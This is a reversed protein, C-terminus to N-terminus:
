EVPLARSYGWLAVCAALYAAVGLLGTLMAGTFISSVTAIFAGLVSCVGNVGWLWPLLNERGRARAADLGLPFPTGMFLGVIFVLAAVAAIRVPQPAARLLDAIGPLALIVILTAGVAGLLFLRAKDRMRGPLESSLLSGVGSGLLLSFLTVVLGYVPHGLIIGTRQMVSIEVLMFALGIAAFYLAPTKDEPLWVQRGERLYLPLITIALAAIVLALGLLGLILIAVYNFTHGSAEATAWIDQWNWFKFLDGPRVIFFFFPRNDTPSSVDFSYSEQWEHSAAPNLITLFPQAPHSPSYLVAFGCKQATEDLKRCDEANLPDPSVLVTAIGPMISSAERLNAVVAVCKQPDKRGDATLAEQALATLRYAEAPAGPRYWRSVSLIGQPKLRSLFTRWAEITYITNESLAYAGSATAAWTDILSIQILDFREPTRELWNRAEAAVLQVRPHRAIGGSFEAFDEKLLNIFVENLEIGTVRRGGMMLACLVDRGGGVGVIAVDGQRRLHYGANVVDYALYGHKSLDGDFQTIWTASNADVNEYRTYVKPFGQTPLKNGMGWGLLGVGGFGPDRLEPPFVAVRSYANWFMKESPPEWMGKVWRPSFLQPAALCIVIFVALGGAGTAAGWARRPPAAWRGALLLALAAAGLAAPPGLLTLAPQVLLCGLAAGVLDATYLRGVPFPTRTLALAVIMGSLFFPIGWLGVILLLSIVAVPHFDMTFAVGLSLLYSVVLTAAFYASLRGMATLSNDPSYYNRHLYVYMAGGAMGLMALSIAAFAFHYWLVVSFIRTLIIEVFVTAATVVFLLVYAKRSNM